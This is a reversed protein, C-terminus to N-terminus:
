QSAHSASTSAPPLQTIRQEVRKDFPEKPDCIDKKSSQTGPVADSDQMTECLKMLSKFDADVARVQENVTDLDKNQDMLNGAHEYRRRLAQKAETIDIEDVM